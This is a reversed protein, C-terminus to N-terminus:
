IHSCKNWKNSYNVIKNLKIYCENDLVRHGKYKEFYNYIWILM